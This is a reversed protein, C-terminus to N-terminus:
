YGRLEELTPCPEIEYLSCEADTFGRELSDKVADLLRDTDLTIVTWPGNGTGVALTEEDLWWADSPNPLPIEHRLEGEDTYIRVFGDAAMVAVLDGSPSTALGRIHDAVHGIVPRFELAGM